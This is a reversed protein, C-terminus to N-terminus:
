GCLELTCRFQTSSIMALNQEDACHYLLGSTIKFIICHYKRLVLAQQLFLSLFFEFLTHVGGEGTGQELGHM